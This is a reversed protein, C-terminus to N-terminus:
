NSSSRLTECSLPAATINTGVLMDFCGDGDLNDLASSYYYDTAPTGTNLPKVTVLAFHPNTKTGDNRFLAVWYTSGMIMNLDNDADIDGFCVAPRNGEIWYFPVKIMM